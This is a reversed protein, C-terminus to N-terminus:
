RENKRTFFILYKSFKTISVKIHDLVLLVFMLYTNNNNKIVTNKKREQLM